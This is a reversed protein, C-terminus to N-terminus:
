QINFSIVFKMALWPNQLVESSVEVQIDLLFGSATERSLIGLAYLATAAEPSLLGVELRLVSSQIFTYTM